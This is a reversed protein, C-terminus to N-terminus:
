MNCYVLLWSVRKPMERYSQGLSRCNNLNVRGTVERPRNEIVQDRGDYALFDKFWNFLEQNNGIYNSSRFVLTNKDIVDQSYLNCLKLFDSMYQRNNIYKKVRDFFNLEDQTAAMSANPPM